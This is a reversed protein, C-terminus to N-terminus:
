KCNVAEKIKQIMYNLDEEELGPYVGIWFSDRMVKDTNELAGIVKYGKQKKRMEDFCPQKILNGAFLMRTQIGNEELYRVVKNRDFKTGDRLTLIFGFWSPKSNPTPEPLIFIHSLEELNERLFDLNKRRKETFYSIKEMQAVGIAAQLDTMKLNYGFHSYIYKHDYGFPLEGMQWSFRKGCSNDRGPRCWCDRGWDRLSLVIKALEPDNTCVAGGEGTTIHHAPYFSLTSLHGFTGTFQWKGNFFYQAGLADCNDEILWLDYKQCIELVSKVDFPNGLTHAIFIAKTKKTIAKELLNCDINYTPLSIDIFVPVAGYQIIPAITTPFSAALTIVEDGRKIRRKGLKPSTLASFALLNASSGSNTLICYRIGLFESLRKEFEEVYRGETLWFELSADILNYIERYDFVRGAYPIKKKKRSLSTEEKKHINEYYTKALIKAWLKLIRELEEKGISGFTNKLESTTVTFLQSLDVHLSKRSAPLLGSINESDSLVIQTDPNIQDENSTIKAVLYKEGVECIIVGFTEGFQIIEGVSSKM